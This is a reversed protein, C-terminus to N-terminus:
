GMMSDVEPSLDAATLLKDELWATNLHLRAVLEPLSENLCEIAPAELDMADAL